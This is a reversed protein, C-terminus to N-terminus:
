GDRLTAPDRPTVLRMADVLRRPIPMGESEGNRAFRDSTARFGMARSTPWEATFWGRYGFLRGRTWNTVVVEIRFRDSADDFWKRVDAVGSFLLPFRFAIPGGGYAWAQRV